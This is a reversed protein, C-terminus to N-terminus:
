IACYVIWSVVMSMFFVGVFFVGVFFVGVIV